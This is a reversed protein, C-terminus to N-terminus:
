ETILDEGASAVGSDRAEIQVKSPTIGLRRSPMRGNSPAYSSPYLERNSCAWTTAFAKPPAVSM